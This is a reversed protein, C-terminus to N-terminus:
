SKSSPEGIYLQFVPEMYFSVNNYEHYDQIFKIRSIQNNIRSPVIDM